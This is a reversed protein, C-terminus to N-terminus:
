LDNAISKLHEILARVRPIDKADRHSVLWFDLKPTYDIHSLRVLDHERKEVGIPNIAIGIGAKTSELLAMSSNTRYVVNNSKELVKRWKDWDEVYETRDCILHNDQIDKLSSPTGRKMIYKHSAFLAFQMSHKSLAVLDSRVPPTYSVAIDAERMNIDPVKDSCMIELTIDPYKEHFDTMRQPLWYAGIGDTVWLRIKGSINQNSVAYLEVKHFMAELEMAIGMIREGAATLIVGHAHRRFLQVNLREELALIHRSITPQTVKLNRAASRFSGTRSAELFFRVDDWSNEIETTVNM